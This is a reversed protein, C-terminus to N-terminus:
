AVNKKASLLIRHNVKLKKACEGLSYFYADYILYDSSTLKIKVDDVNKLILKSFFDGLKTLMFYSECLPPLVSSGEDVTEKENKAFERLLSFVIAQKEKIEEYYELCLMKDLSKTKKGSIIQSLMKDVVM